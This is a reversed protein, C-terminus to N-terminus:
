DVSREGGQNFNLFKRKLNKMITYLVCTLTPVTDQLKGSMKKFMLLNYTNIYTPPYTFIYTYIHKHINYRNTQTMKVCLYNEKKEEM